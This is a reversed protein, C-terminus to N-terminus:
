GAGSRLHEPQIDSPIVTRYQQLDIRQKWEAGEVAFLAWPLLYAEAVESGRVMLIRLDFSCDQDVYRAALDERITMPDFRLPDSSTLYLRVCTHFPRKQGLPPLAHLMALEDLDHRLIKERVQDIEWTGDVYRLVSVITLALKRLHAPDIEVVPGVVGNKSASVRIAGDTATFHKGHIITGRLPELTSYLGILREKLWVRSEILPPFIPSGKVSKLKQQFRFTSPVGNEELIWEVLMDLLKFTSVFVLPAGANLFGPRWDGIVINGRAHAFFQAKSRDVPYVVADPWSPFLEQEVLVYVAELLWAEYEVREALKILATADFSAHSNVM